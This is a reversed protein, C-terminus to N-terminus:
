RLRSRRRVFKRKHEPWFTLKEDAAFRGNRRHAPFLTIAPTSQLHVLLSAQCLTIMQLFRDSISKDHDILRM